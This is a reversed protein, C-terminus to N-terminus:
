GNRHRATCWWARGGRGDTGGAGGGPVRPDGAGAAGGARPDPRQDARRRVAAVLHEARVLLVPEGWSVLDGPQLSQLGVSGNLTFKPFLDATAVGLARHRGRDAAGGAARGAPPAAAGVAAGGTGRGAGGAVRGGEVVGGGAGDAPRRAPRRAPPDGPESEDGAGPDPGDDDSGAGAGAVPGVRQDPGAPRAGADAGGDAAPRGPEGARHRAPETRRLELYNRAVEGLLTTLVDRRDEVAAQINASAAEVARRTGGFVDIEWSADFGAQYLDFESLSNGPIAPSGNAGPAPERRRHEGARCQQGRIGVRHRQRERPRAPLLRHRERGPLARGPVVGREAAPRACARRRGNLDLNEAVARRILGDLVPDHFTTWWQVVPSVGSVTRSSVQTTPRTAPELGKEGLRAAGDGDAAAYDPGVECGALGAAVATMLITVTRKRM